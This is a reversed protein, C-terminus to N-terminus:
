HEKIRNRQKGSWLIMKTNEYIFLIHACEYYSKRTHRRRRWQCWGCVFTYRFLSATSYSERQLVWNTLLSFSFPISVNPASTVTFHAVLIFPISTFWTIQTIRLMIRAIRATALVEVFQSINLTSVSVLFRWRFRSLSLILFLFFNMLAIFFYCQKIFSVLKECYDILVVASIHEFLWITSTKAACVFGNKQSNNENARVM